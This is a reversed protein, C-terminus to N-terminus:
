EGDAAMRMEDRAALRAGATSGRLRFGDAQARTDDRAAIEEIEDDTTDATIGERVAESVWADAEVAEVGADTWDATEILQAVDGAADEADDTLAGVMNRDDWRVSHGAAVRELLPRAVDAIAALKAADAVVLTWAPLVQRWVLDRRHHVRGPVVTDGATREDARLTCSGDEELRLELMAEHRGNDDGLVYPSVDIKIEILEM